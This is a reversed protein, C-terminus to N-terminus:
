VLLPQRHQTDVHSLRFEHDSVCGQRESQAFLCQLHFLSKTGAHKVSCTHGQAQSSKSDSSTQHCSVCGTSTSRSKDTNKSTNALRVTQGHVLVQPHVQSINVTHAQSAASVTWSRKRAAASKALASSVIVASAFCSPHLALFQWPFMRNCTSRSFKLPLPSHVTTEISPPTRVIVHQPATKQDPQVIDGSELTSIWRGSGCRKHQFITCYDSVQDLLSFTALLSVWEHWQQETQPNM